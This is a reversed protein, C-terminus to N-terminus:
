ENYGVDESTVDVVKGKIDFKVTFFIKIDSSESKWDERFLYGIEEGMKNKILYYDRDSQMWDPADNLHNTSDIEYSELIKGIKSPLKEFDIAEVNKSFEDSKKIVALDDLGMLKVSDTVWGDREATGDAAIKLKASVVIEFTRGNITSSLYMKTVVKKNSIPSSLPPKTFNFTSATCEDKKIEENPFTDILSTCIQSKIENSNLSGAAFASSTVFLFFFIIINKMSVGKLSGVM